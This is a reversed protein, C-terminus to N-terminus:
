SRTPAGSPTSTSTMTRASGSGPRASPAVRRDWSPYTTDLKRDGTRADWIQTHVTDSTGDFLGAYAFFEGHASFGLRAADESTSISILNVSPNAATLDHM